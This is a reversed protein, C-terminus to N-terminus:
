PPLREAKRWLYKKTLTVRANLIVICTMCASSVPDREVSLVKDNDRYIERAAKVQKQPFDGLTKKASRQADHGGGGGTSVVNHTVHGREQSYDFSGTTEITPLSSTAQVSRHAKKPLVPRLYDAVEGSEDCEIVDGGVWAGGVVNASGAATTAMRVRGGPQSIVKRSSEQAVNVEDLLVNVSGRSYVAAARRPGSEILIRSTSTDADLLADVVGKTGRNQTEFPKVAHGNMNINSILSNQFTDKQCNQYRVSETTAANFRAHTTVIGSQTPVRGAVSQRGTVNEKDIYVDFSSDVSSKEDDFITYARLKAAAAASHLSTRALMTDDPISGVAPIDRERNQQQIPPHSSLHDLLNDVADRMAGMGVTSGVLDTKAPSALGSGSGRSSRGYSEM